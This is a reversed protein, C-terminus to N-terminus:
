HRANLRTSKRDVRQAQALAGDQLDLELTAANDQALTDVIRNRARAPAELEVAEGVGAVRHGGDAPALGTRRGPARPPGIIAISVGLDSSRRTPFPTGTRTSRPPPRNM